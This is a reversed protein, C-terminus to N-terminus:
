KRSKGNKSEEYFAGEFHRGFKEPNINRMANSYHLDDDLTNAMDFLINEEKLNSEKFQISLAKRLDIKFIGNEEYIANKWFSKNKAWGPWSDYTWNKGACAGVFVKINEEKSKYNSVLCDAIMQPLMRDIMEGGCHGIATIGQLEDSMMVVPCDAVPHGIVVGPVEDTIVLIDEPIDSWGNPNNKVYKKTIEFFSGDKKEQDAMFMKKGDFGNANGFKERHINFLLRKEDSLLEIDELKREDGDELHMSTILKKDSDTMNSLRITSSNMSGFFNGSDVIKLTGNVM